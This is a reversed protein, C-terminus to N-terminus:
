ELELAIKKLQKYFLNPDLFNSNYYRRLTIHLDELVWTM